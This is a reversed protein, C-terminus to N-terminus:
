AFSQTTKKKLWIRRNKSALFICDEQRAWKSGVFDVFHVQRPIDGTAGNEYPLLSIQETPIALSADFGFHFNKWLLKLRMSIFLM